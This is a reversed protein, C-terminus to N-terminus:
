RTREARAGNSPTWAPAEAGRPDATIAPPDAAPELKPSTPQVSPAPPEAPRTVGFLDPRFRVLAGGGALGVLLVALTIGLSPLSRNRRARAPASSAPEPEEARAPAVVAPEVPAPPPTPQPEAAPPPPTGELGAIRRLYAAAERVARDDMQAAGFRALLDDARTPAYQPPKPTFRPDALLARAAPLARLAIEADLPLPTLSDVSPRAARGDLEFATTPSETPQALVVPEALPDSPAALDLEIEIPAATVPEIPAADAPVPTPTKPAPPAPTPTKEPAAVVIPTKPAVPEPTPSRLAVPADVETHAAIEPEPAATDIEVAGM